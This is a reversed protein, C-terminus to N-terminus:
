WTITYTIKHDGKPIKVLLEEKGALQRIIPRLGDNGSFDVFYSKDNIAFTGDPLEEIKSGEGIKHWIKKVADATIIRQLTRASDSPALRNTFTSENVQQSFVPLGNEDLQYGLQKYTVRPPISDPWPSKENKLFAFDPDGHSSISLGLPLGLQQAGRAHWMNTVDLFDRDWVKLLSGFALDYAYNLGQPTAVSICHTRKNGEHMLFSRQMVPENLATVVMPQPQNGRGSPLSGLAHLPHKAIGPGEVYLAFGQQYPRHKNYIFTFPIDGKALSIIGFGPQQLNYDGNLNVITDNNVLLLGGGRNIRMEFIYQGPNPINLKGSYLLVKQSNQGTAMASSLSDAEIERQAALTDFNPIKEATSEYEKMLVSKLSVQKDEYLKYKINRLAVPGHDGQIMLPGMPQEDYFAAARTSGTVEQNEHLLVGNLWVKKFIANKVKGGSADFRPAQFKIKFHQWLGPAKAANVKPPRGEYGKNGKERAPDWRQYIGGIDSHKPEKVGWSDLLQVEYRGQFYLGSNSNVPMMVDLEVEIDGHEFATFLNDKHEGPVPLNVLVGTGPTSEMVRKQSRDVYVGGAIQWNKDVEKFAKMDNLDIIQFPLTELPRDEPVVEPEQISKESCCTLLFAAILFIYQILHKM